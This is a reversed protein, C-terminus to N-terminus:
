ITSFSLVFFGREAAQALKCFRAGACFLFQRGVNTEEGGHPRGMRRRYSRRPPTERSM